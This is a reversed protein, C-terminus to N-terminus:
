FDKFSSDDFPIVEEPKRVTSSVGSASRKIAPRESAQVRAPLVPKVARRSTIEQILASRARDSPSTAEELSAATGQILIVLDRVMSKLHVTQTSMEEATSASEEASAANQQTVRDLDAVAKSIQNIGEAQEQSATAIEAVLTGVKTSIEVNHTFAEQTLRTFESSKKVVAITNEILTATNHSAGAARIALNRVEDAVVAFGAGAEGARAAEVAANLALLNTQFAIEDITKIIKGTEESTRTVEMIAEAMNGMHDSVQFVAARAQEMLVKAQNANEANAKTMSSMEELSASSEEIAAAQSSSGEAQNQSSSAVNLSAASMESTSQNIEDAIHQLKGILKRGLLVFNALLAITAIPATIMTTMISGHLGGMRGVIYFCVCLVSIGPILGLNIKWTLNKGLFFRIGSNIVLSGIILTVLIILIEIFLDM